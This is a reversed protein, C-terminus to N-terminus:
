GDVVEIKASPDGVRQFGAEVLDSSKIGLDDAIKAWAVSTSTKTKSHKQLLGSLVTEDFTSKMELIYGEWDYSKRGESYKARINSLEVSKEYYLVADLIDRELSKLERFLDEYKLVAEALERSNLIRPKKAPPREPEPYVHRKETM